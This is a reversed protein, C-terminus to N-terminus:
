VTNPRGAQIQHARDLWDTLHAAAEDPTAGYFPMMAATMAPIRLLNARWRKDDVMAVEILYCRGGIIREVRHQVITSLNQFIPLSAVPM